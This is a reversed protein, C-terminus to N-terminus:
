RVVRTIDYRRGKIQSIREIDAPHFIMRDMGIARFPQRPGGVRIELVGIVHRIIIDVSRVPVPDGAPQRQLAATYRTEVRGTRRRLATVDGNGDVGDLAVVSPPTARTSKAVVGPTPLVKAIMLFPEPLLVMLPVNPPSAIPGGFM